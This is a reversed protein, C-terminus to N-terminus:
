IKQGLLTRFCCRCSFFSSSTLADQIAGWDKDPWYLQVGLVPAAGAVIATLGLGVLVARKSAMYRTKYSTPCRVSGRRRADRMVRLM